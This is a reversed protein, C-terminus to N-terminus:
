LERTKLYALDRLPKVLAKKLLFCREAWVTITAM